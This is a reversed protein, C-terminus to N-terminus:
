AHGRRYLDYHQSSQIPQYPLLYEKLVRHKGLQARSKGYSNIIDFDKDKLEGFDDLKQAVQYSADCEELESPIEKMFGSPLENECRIDALQFFSGRKGFYNIHRLLPSLKEWDSIGLAIDMDGSFSAFERFAITSGYTGPTERSARLVKIFTHNVVLNEPPRIRVEVQRLHQFCEKALKEDGMRFAADILAMKVSYPTPVFVTKGGSSTSITSRLSFLSVPRFTAITWKQIM